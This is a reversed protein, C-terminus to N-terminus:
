PLGRLTSPWRGASRVRSGALYSTNNGRHLKVGQESLRVGVVAGTNCMVWETVGERGAATAMTADVGTLMVFNNVLPVKAELAALDKLIREGEEQNLKPQPSSSTAMTTWMGSGAMGGRVAISKRREFGSFQKELAQIKPDSDRPQYVTHQVDGKLDWLLIAGKYLYYVCHKCVNSFVAYGTDTESRKMLRSADLPPVSLVAGESSTRYKVLAGVLSERCIGEEAIEISTQGLSNCLFPNAGAELLIKVVDNRVRFYREPHDMLCRDSMNPPLPAKTSCAVHLVTNGDPPGPMNITSVKNTALEKIANVQGFVENAFATTHFVYNTSSLLTRVARVLETDGARKGNGIDPNSSALQTSPM